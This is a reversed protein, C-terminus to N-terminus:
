RQAQAANTFFRVSFRAKPDPSAQELKLSTVGLANKVGSLLVPELEAFTQKENPAYLRDNALVLLEDKNFRIRGTLASDKELLACAQLATKVITAVRQELPGELPQKRYYLLGMRGDAMDVSFNGEHAVLLIGPGHHIHSYDHIDILLHNEIARRQIWTHFVPIFETLAVAASDAAYVKVGIKQLDMSM